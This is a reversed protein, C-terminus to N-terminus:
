AAVPVRSQAIRFRNAVYALDTLSANGAPNAGSVHYDSFAAAQNVYVSGTLNCSLAAGAEAAADEAAELVAPDTAYVSCTIAGCKRAARVARALSDETGETAVVFSIPGFMERMYRSEDKAEVGLILPTRVRADPFRPHALPASHRIVDGGAAAGDVRALTAESQIAGIIDASSEPDSVLADVAAGLAGAVQEISKHGEDTGIGGRPVFIDQPTTCMQGSYLSLSFAINRVMGKFDDTSDIVVSNVGAKETYVVAHRAHTELWDGFSSGGTFDVIGIESRIALEQAIPEDITDTQLVVLNPDFGAEALVERAIRVTLALPLVVTPHPKVVVANGTALDAFIAPYSNWTPFTSCCIVMGIGRAVIRYKKDFRLPEHKGRPKVWSAQAPTWRMAECAYAVAELGRDQAHPGAAQFAMVFGQGTTHMVAYAMEFSQKNIRDLIELCVGARTDIGAKGWAGQAASAAAVLADPNSRPYTIGLTMGFPSVESGVYDVVGPQDIEFRQGLKAEFAARGDANATEGYIRGSPIEPYPTWYDRSGIAALAKDLTDRHRDIFGDAM